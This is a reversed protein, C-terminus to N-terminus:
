QASSSLAKDHDGAIFKWDKLLSMLARASSLRHQITHGPRKLMLVPLRLKRAAEMKAFSACGGSNKSIVWQVQHNQFLEIEEDVCQAPAGLVYRINSLRLQVDPPTLTRVVFTVDPRDALPAAKKPSGAFFATTNSPLLALATQLNTVPHWQDDAHPQWEPREFRILPCQIASCAHEANSRMQAAYPHTADIVANIANERLYQILGERGGFGGIRTKVPLPKPNATVGALSAIINLNTQQALEQLLLRAERTGALILLKKSTM